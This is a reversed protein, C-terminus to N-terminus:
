KKTEKTQERMMTFFAEQGADNIEALLYHGVDQKGANYHIRASNEWVTEFTKCFGLLRWLFRRGQVTSIVTRIDDLQQNREFKVKSEAQNVQGENAANTVIPKSM